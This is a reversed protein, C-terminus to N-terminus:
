HKGESIQILAFTAYNLIDVFNADIGESILTKGENTLIQRIRLLKVLILDAYSEQSMDRWAEGYDHNKDMMTSKTQEVNSYNEDGYKELMTKKVKNRYEPLKSYSDVGYKELIASKFNSKVVDTTMPHGGYKEDFPKKQGDIIKQKTSGDSNSCKKSCFVKPKSVRCEFM